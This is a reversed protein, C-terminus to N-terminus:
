GCRKGLFIQNYGLFGSHKAYACAIGELGMKKPDQNLSLSSREDYFIVDYM